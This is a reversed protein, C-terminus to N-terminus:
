MQLRRQMFPIVSAYRVTCSMGNQRLCSLLCFYFSHLVCGNIIGHSLSSCHKPSLCLWYRSDEIPACVGFYSMPDYVASYGIFYDVLYWTKMAASLRMLDNDLCNPVVKLKDGALLVSSASVQLNCRIMTTLSM